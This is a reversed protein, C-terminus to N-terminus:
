VAAQMWIRIQFIRFLAKVLNRFDIYSSAQYYFTLKNGDFQFEAATLSMPLQFEAVKARGIQLARQERMDKQPLQAVEHQTAIRIIKKANQVERIPPRRVIAIIRGIDYGRDAETLVFDNQNITLNRNAQFLEKHFQNFQVQYYSKSSQAAGEFEIVGQFTVDSTDFISTQPMPASGPLPAAPQTYSSAGFVVNPRQVDSRALSAAQPMPPIMENDGWAERLAMPLLSSVPLNSTNEDDQDDKTFLDWSMGPYNQFFLLKKKTESNKM